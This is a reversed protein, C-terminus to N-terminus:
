SCSQAFRPGLDRTELRIIVLSRLAAIIHNPSTERQRGLEGGGDRGGGHIIKRGGM